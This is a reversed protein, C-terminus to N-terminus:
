WPSEHWAARSDQRWIRRTSTRELLCWEVRVRREKGGYRERLGRLYKMFVRCLFTVQGPNWLFDGVINMDSDQVKHLLM